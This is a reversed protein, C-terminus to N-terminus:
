PPTPCRSLNPLEASSSDFGLTGEGCIGEGSALYYFATGYYPDALDISRTPGNAMFDANEFCVHDYRLAAPRSGLGGLRPITGRYSNWHTAAPTAIWELTVPQTFGLDPVEALAVPVHLCGGTAPECHDATCPDGDDCGVPDNRCLGTAPDCTDSTCPNRDDCDAPGAPICTGAFCTDEETCYNGDDCAMGNPENAHVCGGLRGDCSDRTCPNGDDCGLSVSLCAGTAPDCGDLTCPNRDDCSVLPVGACLGRQCADFETCISEDDCPLGDPESLHRCSGTQADCFDRTCVNGDDCPLPSFICQGTEDDCLDVTCPDGDDCTRQVSQCSGSEPECYDHTCPQGDDCPTPGCGQDVAQFGSPGPPRDLMGEALLSDASDVIRNGDLDAAGCRRALDLLVPSPPFRDGGGITRPETLPFTLSLDARDCDNVAAVDFPTVLLDGDLDADCANGFGDGDADTQDPNAIETCNDAFDPLTDRDLDALPTTPPGPKVWTAGLDLTLGGTGDSVPALELLQGHTTERAHVQSADYEAVIAVLQNTRRSRIELRVPDGLRQLRAGGTATAGAGAGVGEGPEAVGTANVAAFDGQLALASQSIAFGALPQIYLKRNVIEFSDFRIREQPNVLSVLDLFFEECGGGLCVMWIPPCPMPAGFPVCITGPEIPCPDFGNVGPQCGGPPIGIAGKQGPLYPGGQDCIGDNDDDVDSCNRAGDGDSDDGEFGYTPETGTGCGSEFHSGVVVEGQSPHQDKINKCGDGDKDDDCLDGKGDKDLDGTPLPIDPCLDCADGQGDHDRDAQSTNAHKPCNDDIQCIGDQDPDGGRPACVDPLNQREPLGNKCTTFVDLSDSSFPEYTVGNITYPGSCPWGYYSMTQFPETGVNLPNNSGNQRQVCSVSCFRRHASGSDVLLPGLAVETAACWEHGNRLSGNSSVDSVAPFDPDYKDELVGPDPATDNVGCCDDLDYDPPNPATELSDQWTFTHVLCWHHGMEHAWVQGMYESGRDKNADCLIGYTNPFADEAPDGGIPGQPIHSCCMNPGQTILMNISLPFATAVMTRWQQRRNEIVESVGPACGETENYYGDVKVSFLIPRFSIGSKRWVLNTEQVADFVFTRFDQVSDHGCASDFCYPWLYLDYTVAKAAGSGALVIAVALVLRGVRRGINRNM